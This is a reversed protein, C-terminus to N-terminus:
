KGHQVEQLKKGFRNDAFLRLESLPKGAFTNNGYIAMDVEKLAQILKEDKDLLFTERTTLKTYPKSELQEMYKKWMSLANETTQPSFRQDIESVIRNYQEIFKNHDRRLKKAKFYRVIRKGFIIWVIVLVVILVGGILLALLTNFHMKVAHYITNSKLPLNQVSVSDPMEKLVHVLRITDASSLYTTCDQPNVVYVPLMLDQLTDLEFTTLYYVTSDASIGDNTETPFYQRKEYEFPAFSFASDPFLVVLDSPYRASLYFATQEGVKLSDSLFGGNVKIQAKGEGYALSLMLAVALPLVNRRTLLLFFTM